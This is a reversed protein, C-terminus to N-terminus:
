ISPFSYSNQQNPDLFGIPNTDPLLGKVLDGPQLSDARRFPLEIVYSAHCRPRYLSFPRFGRIIELIRGGGDLYLVDIRYCVFWMHLSIRRPPSFTFVLARDRPRTFMLGRAAQVPTCFQVIEALSRLQVASPM